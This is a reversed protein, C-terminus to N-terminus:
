AIPLGAARKSAPLSPSIGRLGRWSALSIAVVAFPAAQEKTCVALAACLGAGFLERKRQAREALHFALGLWFVYHIDVNTTRAHYVFTASGIFLVPALWAQRAAGMRRAERLAIGVLLTALLVTVARGALTLAAISVEPHVFGWPPQSSPVGLEGTLKFGVLLAMMPIAQTMYAVPGYSSSWTPGFRAAIARLVSGPATNDVDWSWQPDLGWHIPILLM